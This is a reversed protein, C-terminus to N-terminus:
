HRPGISRLGCEDMGTGITPLNQIAIVTRTIARGRRGRLSLGLPVEEASEAFVPTQLVRVEKVQDCEGLRRAGSLRFGGGFDFLCVDPQQSPTRGVM